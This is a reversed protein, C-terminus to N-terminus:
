LFYFPNEFNCDIIEVTSNTNIKTIRYPGQSKPAFKKNEATTFKRDVGLYKCISSFLKSTFNTGRDTLITRPSGHRTIIHKVVAFATTEAKQDPLPIAEVWKTLYDTVVMVCNNGLTPNQNLPGIFDIAITSFPADAVPLPNSPDRHIAPKDIACKICAKCYEKIERKM